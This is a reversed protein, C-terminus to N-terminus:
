KKHPSIFVTFGMSKRDNIPTILGHIPTILGHIPTILGHIPTKLGNILCKYLWEMELELGLCRDAKQPRLWPCEM